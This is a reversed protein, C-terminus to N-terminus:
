KKRVAGFGKTAAGCGLAGGKAKKVLGRQQEVQNALSARDAESWEKWGSTKDEDKGASMPEMVKPKGAKVAEKFADAKKQRDKAPEAM